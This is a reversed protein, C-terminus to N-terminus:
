ITLKYLRYTEGTGYWDPFDGLWQVGFDDNLQQSGNPRAHGCILSFGAGKVFGLWHAKLIKGWGKGQYDPMITNSYCYMARPDADALGEVAEDLSSLPVGYAEGVCVDDVFMWVFISGKADRLEQKEVLDMQLEDPYIAEFQMTENLPLDYKFTIKM